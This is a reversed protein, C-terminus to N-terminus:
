LSPTQISAAASTCSSRRNVLLAPRLSSTIRFVQRPAKRSGPTASPSVSSCTCSSWSVSKSFAEPTRASSSSWKQGHQMSTAVLFSLSSLAGMWLSTTTPGAAPQEKLSLSFCLALHASPLGFFSGHGLLSCPISASLRGFGSGHAKFGHAMWASTARVLLTLMCFSSSGRSASIASHMCFFLSGRSALSRTCSIRPGRSSSCFARILEDHFSAPPSHQAGRFIPRATAVVTTFAKVELSTSASANISRITSSRRQPRPAPPMRSSYTRLCARGISREFTSSKRSESKRAAEM